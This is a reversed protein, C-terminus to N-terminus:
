VRKCQVLTFVTSSKQYSHMYFAWDKAPADWVGFTTCKYKSGTPGIGGAYGSPGAIREATGREKLLEKQLAEQTKMLKAPSAEPSSDKAAQEQNLHIVYRGGGAVKSGVGLSCGSMTDTFMVKAMSPEVLVGFGGDWNNFAPCWFAPFEEDGGLALDMVFIPIAKGKSDQGTASYPYPKLTMHVIKQNRSAVNDTESTHQQIVINKSMFDVPNALFDSVTSM